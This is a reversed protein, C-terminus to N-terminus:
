FKTTFIPAVRRILRLLIDAAAQRNTPTLPDYSSGLSLVAKRTNADTIPALLDDRLRLTHTCACLIHLATASTQLACKTCNPVVTGAIKAARWPSWSDLRTAAIIAATAPPLILHVPQHRFHIRQEPKPDLPPLHYSRMVARLPQGFERQRATLHLNLTNRTGHLRAYSLDSYWGRPPTVLHNASVKEEVWKAWQGLPPRYERLNRLTQLESLVAQPAPNSSNKDRLKRWRRIATDTAQVQAIEASLLCADHFVSARHVNTPLHLARRMPTIITASLENLQRPTYTVFPASYAHITCLFTRTLMVTLQVPLPSNSKNLAAITAAAAHLQPKIHAAHATGTHDRSLVIGLYKYNNAVHLPIDDLLLPLAKLQEAVTCMRPSLWQCRHPEFHVAASKKVGRGWTMGKDNAWTTVLQLARILDAYAGPGTRTPLLAIDDAYSVVDVNRTLGLQLGAMPITPLMADAAIPIAKRMDHLLTDAFLLFLFPSIVSGQPVGNIITRPDSAETGISVTFTRNSCFAVCWRILQPHIQYRPHSIATFLEYHSVSDFAAKLDLFVVPMPMGSRRAASLRALLYGVADHASRGSRFGYQHPNLSDRTGPLMRRLVIREVCKLAVAELAIPRFNAADTTAGSKHLVITKAARWRTPLEDRAISATALAHLGRLWHKGALKIASGTFGDFGPAKRNPLRKVADTFEHDSVDAIPTRPPPIFDSAPRLPQRNFVAAVSDAYNEASERASTPHPYRKGEIFAAPAPPKNTFRRLNDWKPFLKGESEGFVSDVKESYRQVRLATLATKFKRRAASAITKTLEFRNLIQLPPHPLAATLEDRARRWRNRASKMDRFLQLEAAPLFDKRTPAPPSPRVLHLAADMAERLAEWMGDVDPQLQWQAADTTNQFRAHKSPTLKTVDVPLQRPAPPPATDTSLTITIPAHDSSHLSRPLGIALNTILSSRTALVADLCSSSTSTVRTPVSPAYLANLSLVHHSALLRAIPHTPDPQFMSTNPIQGPGCSIRADRCNLDGAVLIPLTSLIPDSVLSLIADHLQTRITAATTPPIYMAILLFTIAPKKRQPITVRVPLALAASPGSAISITHSRLPSAHLDARAIVCVGSSDSSHDLRHITYGPLCLQATPALHTETLAILAPPSPSNLLLQLEVRAASHPTAISRCNWLVISEKTM